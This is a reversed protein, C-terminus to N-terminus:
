SENTTAQIGLQQMRSLNNEVGVASTLRGNEVRFIYVEDIEDFRRGTPAVGLWDGEHTGSCRLHAVVTDREAVLEVIRMEFDPLSGHFPRVWRKGVTVFEGAAIEGFADLDRQNVIEVLRRVLWWDGLDKSLRTSGEIDTFLMTVTGTPM